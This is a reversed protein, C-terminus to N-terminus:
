GGGLCRLLTDLNKRMAEEYYGPSPSGTELTILTCLRVGLDQRLREMAAEGAQGGSFVARVGQERVIDYVRTLRRPLPQGSSPGTLSCAALGYRGAFYNFSEHYTVLPRGKYRALGEAIDRHLAMLRATYARANAEYHGRNSPDARILADRINKVQQAAYLPDLWFHPDPSGEGGLVVIGESTDVLREDNIFRGLVGSELGAGNAIILRAEELSRLDGPRMSFEHVETGPPVLLSVDAAEGAVNKAFIWVPLFTAAVKIGGAGAASSVFMIIILLAGPGARLM